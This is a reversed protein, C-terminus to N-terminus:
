LTIRLRSFHEHLEVISSFVIKAGHRYLSEASQHTAIGIPFMGSAAAAQMGTLSDELIWTNNFDEPSVGLAKALCLFIEPNPKPHTVDDMGFIHKISFGMKEVSAALFAHPANSGIGYPIGHQELSDVLEKIGAYAEPLPTNHLLIELKREYYSEGLEPQGVEKALAQAIELSSLGEMRKQPFSPLEASFIEQHALKWAQHHSTKSDAFVGDFDFLVARPFPLPEATM